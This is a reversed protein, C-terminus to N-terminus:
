QLERKYRSITIKTGTNKLKLNDGYGSQELDIMDNRKQNRQRVNHRNYNNKNKSVTDEM